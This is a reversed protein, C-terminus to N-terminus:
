FYRHYRSLFLNVVTYSFIVFIFNLVCLRSARAGRWASTRGLWVYSAYAAFIVLTVIEKADANWFQGRIRSAWVFGLVMGVGLSVMGVIVSSRSMRELVELAPLQWVMAGLRNRRGPVANRSTRDPAEQLVSVLHLSKPQDCVAWSGRYRLSDDDPDATLAGDAPLRM